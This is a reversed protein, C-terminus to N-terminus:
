KSIPDSARVSFKVEVQTAIQPGMLDVMGQKMQRQYAAVTQLNRPTAVRVALLEPRGARAAELATDDLVPLYAYGRCDCMARVYSLFNSLNLGNRITEIALVALTGDFQWITHPGIEAEESNETPPTVHLYIQKPTPYSQIAPVDPERGSFFPGAGKIAGSRMM